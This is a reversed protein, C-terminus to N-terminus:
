EEEEEEEEKLPSSGEEIKCGIVNSWIVSPKMVRIRRIFAKELIFKGVKYSQSENFAHVYRWGLSKTCVICAVDEITHLGTLLMKDEKTGM